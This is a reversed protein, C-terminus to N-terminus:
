SLRQRYQIFGSNDAVADYLTRAAANSEQTLWYVRDCNRATALQKVTDILQAGYGMKRSANSVYLDQLYCYDTTTWTSPHMIWHVLGVADGQDDRCLFGVMGDASDTMKAFTNNTTADPVETKYFALYKVWLPQWADFDEGTLPKITSM